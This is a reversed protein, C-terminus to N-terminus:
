RIEREVELVQARPDSELLRAVADLQEGVHGYEGGVVAVGLTARQWTDGGDVEAVSANFRAKAREKLSSVVSRREKLSRSGPLFLSVKLTGIFM